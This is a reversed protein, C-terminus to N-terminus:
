GECKLESAESIANEAAQSLGPLQVKSLCRPVASISRLSLIYRLGGKFRISISIHKDAFALIDHRLIM